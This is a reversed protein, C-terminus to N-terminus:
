AKKTRRRRAAVLALAGAGALLGFASPEPVTMTLSLTTGDYALSETWGTQTWGKLEVAGLLTDVNDSTISVGNYTLASTTILDVAFTDASSSYDSLDIVLTANESIIVSQASLAVAGVGTAVELKAGANVMTAGFMSTGSSSTAVKLVGSEVTVTGYGSGYSWLVNAGSLELTGEGRKVLSIKAGLEGGLSGSFTSDTASDVTLTASTTGDALGVTGAGSLGAVTVADTGLKLTAGSQVEVGRTTGLASAHAAVVTGAEIVTGGTYINANSLTLMGAGAKKLAGDGSIVGALKNGTNESQLILTKGSSVSIANGITLANGSSDEAVKLTVENVGTDGLANLAGTGLANNHEVQIIGAKLQTADNYSKGANAAGSNNGSLVLTGAGTKIIAGTAGGYSAGKDDDGKPDIIGSLTLTKDAAVEFTTDNRLRMSASIESNERVVIEHTGSLDLSGYGDGTTNGDTAKITGGNLEVITGSGITQRKNGLDWVGGNLTISIGSQDYNFVEEKDQAVTVTSGAGIIINGSIAKKNASLTVNSIGTGALTLSSGAAMSTITGTVASNGSVSVVANAGVAVNNLKVANDTTGALELASGAAMSAITLLEVGGNEKVDIVANAGLTVAGANYDSIKGETVSLTGNKITTAIILFTGAGDKTLTRGGLDLETASFNAGALGFHGKVATVTSDATLVIKSLQRGITNGLSDKLVGGNLYVTGLRAGDTDEGYCVSDANGNLDFVGGANVTVDGALNKASSLVLTGGNGVFFGSKATVKGNTFSVTGASITLTDVAVGAPNVAVAASSDFIVDDLAASAVNGSEASSDSNWQTSSSSWTEDKANGRWYLTSFTSATYSSTLNSITNSSGASNDSWVVFFKETGTLILDSASFTVNANETTPSYATTTIQQKAIQTATTGDWSWVSFYSSTQVNGTFSISIDTMKKDTGLLTNLDVTAAVFEGGYASRGTFTFGTATFSSDSSKDETSKNDVSFHWGDEALKSCVSLDNAVVSASINSSGLGQQWDATKNTSTLYTVGTGSSGLTPLLTGTTTEAFASAGMAAAALLSTLLLKSTKM